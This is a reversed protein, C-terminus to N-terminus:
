SMRLYSSLLQDRQYSQLETVKRVGNKRVGKDTLSYMLISPERNVNSGEKKLVM